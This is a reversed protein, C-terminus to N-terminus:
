NNSSLKNVLFAGFWVGFIGMFGPLTPPAPLPFKLFSFVIGTVLGTLISLLIVKLDSM